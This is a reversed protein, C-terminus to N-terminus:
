CAAYSQRAGQLCGLSASSHWHWDHQSVDRQEIKLIHGPSDAADAAGKFPARM